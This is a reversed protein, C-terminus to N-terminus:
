RDNEKRWEPLLTLVPIESLGRDRYLTCALKKVRQVALAFRDGSCYVKQDLVQFTWCGRGKPYARHVELYPRLNVVGKVNTM